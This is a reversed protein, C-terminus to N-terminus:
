YSGPRLPFISVYSGNSIPASSERPSKPHTIGNSTPPTGSSSALGAHSAGNVKTVRQALPAETDSSATSVPSMARDDESAPVPLRTSIDVSLDSKQRSPTDQGDTAVQSNPARGKRKVGIKVQETERRLGLHYDPDQNYTVPRPRRHRHWFKGSCRHLTLFFQIM